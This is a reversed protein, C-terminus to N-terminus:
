NDEVEFAYDTTWYLTDGVVVEEVEGTTVVKEPGTTKESESSIRLSGCTVKVTGPTEIRKTGFGRKVYSTTPKDDNTM